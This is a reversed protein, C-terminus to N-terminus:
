CFQYDCLRKWFQPNRMATVCSWLKKSFEKWNLCKIEAKGNKKSKFLEQQHQSTWDLVFQCVSEFGRAMNSLVKITWPCRGIVACRGNVENHLTCYFCRWRKQWVQNRRYTSLCLNRVVFSVILGILLVGLLDRNNPEKTEKVKHHRYSWFSGWVEQIQM